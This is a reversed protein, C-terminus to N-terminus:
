AVKQEIQHNIFRWHYNSLYAELIEELGFHSSGFHTYIARVLELDTETDVTWRLASYDTSHCVSGVKFRQPNRYVMLTVHEREEPRTATRSVRGLCSRTMVEVDLGRPYTRIPWFNCTYDLHPQQELIHITKDIVQPDILPCDSTIRVIRGPSFRDAALQFRELVDDQDGRIFPVNHDSCWDWIPEDATLNSAAVITEDVLNSLSVREVVHELMPKGAIPMMVKGPLRSSQMRAQIIAITKM